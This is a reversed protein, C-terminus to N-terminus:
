GAYEFRVWLYGLREPVECSLRGAHLKATGEGGLVEVAAGVGADVLPVEVSWAASANLERFVVAYGSRRDAAVSVFGTWAAGDPADGVPLIDGRHIAERHEKWRSILPKLAGAFEPPLNQVECFGLPACFMTIAFLTDPRYRAPALPNDDGYKEPHRAANLWETRLRVPEVWRALQWAARLTQHPLYNGWDTYRNQVFLTGELGFYGFRREATIDFDFSIAGGSEARVADVFRRFNEESQATTIKLADVKFFEAGLERYLGLLADADQRWRAAEDTSDPGFWLGLRMGAARILGAIAGLGGPFREPHVTWFQPDDAWFGNWVGGGELAAASNATIGKQWGDDIQVVDVGLERAAEIERTIFATNLHADRARDGWTNSLLLGDQRPDYPLLERQLAHAAAMRGWRGGTYARQMWPYGGEANLTVGGDPAAALDWECPLARMEPLPGRRLFVTGTGDITHEVAFANGRLRLTPANSGAGILWETERVLEPQRDTADTLTAQVVRWAGTPLRTPTAAPVAAAPDTEVGTFSPDAPM